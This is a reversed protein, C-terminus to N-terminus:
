SDVHRSLLAVKENKKRRNRKYRSFAIASTVKKRKRINAIRVGADLYLAVRASPCTGEGIKEGTRQTGGRALRAPSHGMYTRVAFDTLGVIM